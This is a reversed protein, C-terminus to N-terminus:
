DVLWTIISHIHWGIRRQSVALLAINSKGSFWALAPLTCQTNLLRCTDVLRHTTWLELGLVLTSIDLEDTGLPLLSSLRLEIIVVYHRRVLRLLNLMNHIWRTLIVFCHICWRVLLQLLTVGNRGTCFGLWSQCHGVLILWQILCLVHVRWVQRRETFQGRIGMHQSRTLM